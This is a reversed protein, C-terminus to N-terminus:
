QTLDLYDEDLFEGLSGRERNGYEDEDHLTDDGCVLDDGKKTEPELEKDDYQGIKAGKQQEKKIM